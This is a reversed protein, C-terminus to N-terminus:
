WKKSFGNGFLVALLADKVSRGVGWLVPTMCGSLCRKALPFFYVFLSAANILARCPICSYILPFRTKMKLFLLEFPPM